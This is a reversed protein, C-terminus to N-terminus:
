RGVEFRNRKSENERARMFQLNSPIHLGSVLKGQLPIIHDITWPENNVRTLMAAIEYMCQIKFLDFKTLWTPTRNIKAARRKSAAANTLHKTKSRYIKKREKQWEITAYYREKAKANQINKKEITLNQRYEKKLANIKEKNELDWARNKADLVEKNKLYYEKRYLRAKEPNKYPM